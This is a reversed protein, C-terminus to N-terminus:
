YRIRYGCLNTPSGSDIVSLPVEQYYTRNSRIEIHFLPDVDEEMDHGYADHIGQSILKLDKSTLFQSEVWDGKMRKWGWYKLAYDRPDEQTHSGWAIFFGTEYKERDTSKYAGDNEKLWGLAYRAPDIDFDERENDTDCISRKIRDEYNDLTIADHDGIDLGLDGAYSMALQQIVYGAHNIDGVDGDAFVATGSDDIWWEGRFMHEALLIPKLKIM